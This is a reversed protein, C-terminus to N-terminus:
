KILNLLAQYQEKTFFPKFGGADYVRITGAINSPVNFQSYFSAKLYANANKTKWCKTGGDQDYDYFAILGYDTSVAPALLTLSQMDPPLTNREVEEWEGIKEYNYMQGLISTGTSTGRTFIYVDQEIEVSTVPTYGEQTVYGIQEIGEFGVNGGFELVNNDIIIRDTDLTDNTRTKLRKCM